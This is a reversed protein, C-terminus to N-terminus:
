SEDYGLSNYLDGLSTSDSETTELRLSLKSWVTRETSVKCSDTEEIISSFNGERASYTQVVESRAVESSHPEKFVSKLNSDNM